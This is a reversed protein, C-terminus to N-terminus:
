SKSKLLAVFEKYKKLRELTEMDIIENYKSNQEMSRLYEVIIDHDHIEGLIDQFNKLSKVGSSEKKSILEISYRLKKFDKRLRHLEDLKKEDGLVIIANKQIEAEIKDLITLYRKRLKSENVMSKPIQPIRLRYIKLALKNAKQIQEVRLDRLNTILNMTKNQYKTEMNKSIIDFDRIKTNLKFLNKALKVYNRLQKKRRVKKPGVRYVAEIRRVSTRIDHINGENPDSIYESLEQYFNDLYKRLKKLFVRRSLEINKEM